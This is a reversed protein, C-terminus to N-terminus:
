VIIEEVQKGSWCTGIKKINEAKVYTEPMLIESDDIGKLWNPRRFVTGVSLDSDRQAMLVIHIRRGAAGTGTM